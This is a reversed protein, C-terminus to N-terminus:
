LDKKEGKLVLEEKDRKVIKEVEDLKKIADKTLIKGVENVKQAIEEETEIFKQKKSKTPIKITIYEDNQETIKIKM